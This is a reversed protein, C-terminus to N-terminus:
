VLKIKSKLSWSSFKKPDPIISGTPPDVHYKGKWAILVWDGEQKVITGDREVEYRLNGSAWSAPIIVRINAGVKIDSNSMVRQDIEMLLRAANKLKDYLYPNLDKLRSSNLINVASKGACAITSTESTTLM